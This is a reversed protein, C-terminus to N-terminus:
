ASAGRPIKRANADGDDDKGDNTRKVGNVESMDVENMPPFMEDMLKKIDDEIKTTDAVSANEKCSDCLFQTFSLDDCGLCGTKFMTQVGRYRQNSLVDTECEPMIIQKVAHLQALMDKTGKATPHQSENLEIDTLNFVTTNDVKKLTDRLFEGKIKLEPFENCIPPLAVTIPMTTSLKALKEAAKEVTYVFEGLSPAKLDNNGACIVAEKHPQDFPIANIIQGIGGGSMCAVDSRLALQNTQQLHSDAYIKIDDTKGKRQERLFNERARSPCDWGHRVKCRGCFKLQDKYSIKFSTGGVYIREGFDIKKGNSDTKKVVIYRNENFDRRDYYREIRTPIVMEAGLSAFYEDFLYNDLARHKGDFAGFIRVKMADPDHNRSRRNEQRQNQREPNERVPTLDIENGRIVLKKDVYRQIDDSQISFTGLNRGYFQKVVKLYDDGHDINLADYVEFTGVPPFNLAPYNRCDLLMYLIKPEEANPESSDTGNTETGHGSPLSNSSDTNPNDSEEVVVLKNGYFDVGNLKLAEAFETGPLVVRAHREEDAFDKIEVCSNKRLHQTRNFGFLKSVDSSTVTNSINKVLLVKMATDTQQQQQQQQPNSMTLRESYERLLKLLIKGHCLQPYCWCGLKKGKLQYIDKLLVRNSRIYREYLKVVKERSRTSSIKYPNGWKSPRGIYVNDPNESWRKANVTRLNVLM